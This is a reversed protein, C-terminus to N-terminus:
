PLLYNKVYDEIGKEISWEARFGIKEAALETSALTHDQYFDYPNDFYEPEFDTGLVGNLIEIIRNFTTDSGTGVNVVCSADAQAAKLNASVVDKVYIFDRSQEGYKFIRPHKGSIMQRALQYIMSAAHGKQAEFPGFVNFYRLGVIKMGTKSAFEAAIEDMKAKSRAYANLPSLKQGEKMPIEGNGYVGASSAYVINTKGPVSLKLLREFAHVNVETMREEDSVLTDTIAAQHFIIDFPHGISKLFENDEIKGSLVEGGFDSLNDRIGCSFDDVAVISADPYVKELKKALNSGIFGAAGTVLIKM